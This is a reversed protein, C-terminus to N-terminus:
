IGSTGLNLTRLATAGSEEEEEEERLRSAERPSEPSTESKSGLDLGCAHGGESDSELWAKWGSAAVEDDAEGPM